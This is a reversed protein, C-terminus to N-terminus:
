TKEKFCWWLLLPIGGHVFRYVTQYAYQHLSELPIEIYFNGVLRALSTLTGWVICYWIAVSTIWKFPVFLLVAAIFDLLGMVILFQRATQDEKFCLIDMCWQIWVGPQPYYAYAYLGHCVFTTAIVVKLSLRFRPTNKGGYLVYALVLPATMQIAYEFFQGVQWFKDKFYLLALLSFSFSGFYLLWKGFKWTDKLFLVVIACLMWFLGMGFGLSDIFQDINFSRNTVYNQWTDGTLTTIIGELLHQDWFFTRLPLDWFLGQWGRGFFLFFVVIRVLLLEKSTFGRVLVKENLTMEIIKQCLYLM